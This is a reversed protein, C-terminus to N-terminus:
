SRGEVLVPAYEKQEPPQAEAIPLVLTFIAGGEARNRCAIEGHHQDIAVNILDSSIGYSAAAFFYLRCLKRWNGQARLLALAALVILLQNAIADALNFNLDYRDAAGPLLRYAFVGFAYLYLSYVMLVSVDILDVARFRVDHERDPAIALAAALPVVKVFLLADTIDPIPRKLWVEYFSWILDSASWLGTGVFVLFWFIRTRAHGRLFNQFSLISATTVLALQLLDGFAALGLSKPVSVAALLSTLVVALAFPLGFHLSLPWRFAAVTSDLGSQREQLM